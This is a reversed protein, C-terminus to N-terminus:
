CQPLNYKTGRIGTSRSVICCHKIQVPASTELGEKVEKIELRKVGQLFSRGVHSSLSFTSNEM